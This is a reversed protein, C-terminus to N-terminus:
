FGFAVTLFINSVNSNVNASDSLGTQYLFDNRDQSARTYSLDINVTNLTYGLGFSFGNLDGVISEDKYPTEQLFYGGRLKLKDFVYEGGINLNTASKLDQQIDSNLFNIANTTFKSNSFDQVSYDVSLLGKSGFIYSLGTTWKGATRYNYDPFINLVNPNVTETGFEDSVTRVFQTTEDSVNYWTPSFYSVAARLRNTIKAITGLQFSFANSRTRLRNDFIIENIESSSDNNTEVFSTFREYEMYHANLNLGFYFRKNLELSANFSFKGNYGKEEIFYDQFFSNATVNSIYETNNFDDPNVPDFVFSQFGLLANQASSGETEGLFTYLDAVSEGALPTLLDLPIGNASDLFFQDISQNNRGRALYSDNYNAIQEYTFGYAYKSVTRDKDNSVFVFVIGAQNLDFTTETENTFGDTFNVDNNIVNLNLTVSGHNTLFVSSGAPNLGVASLDGGLSSFAGAIGTFRATGMMDQRSFRVADTLDQASVTILSMVFGIFLINIKM